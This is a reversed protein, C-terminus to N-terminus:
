STKIFYIARKLRVLLAKDYNLFTASSIPLKSKEIDRIYNEGISKEANSM